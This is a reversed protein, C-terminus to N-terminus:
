HTALMMMNISVLLLKLLLLKYVKYRQLEQLLQEHLGYYVMMVIYDLKCVILSKVIM